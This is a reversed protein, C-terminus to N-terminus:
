ISIIISEQLTINLVTFLMYLVTFFMYTSSYLNNNYITYAIIAKLFTTRIQKIFPDRQLAIDFLMASRHINYLVAVSTNFRSPFITSYVFLYPRFFLLAKNITKPRISSLNDIKIKMYDNIAFIIKSM